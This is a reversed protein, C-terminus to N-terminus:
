KNPLDTEARFAKADAHQCDWAAQRIMKLKYAVEPGSSVQGNGLHVIMQTPKSPMEIGTRTWEALLQDLKATCSTEDPAAGVGPEAYGLLTSLSVAAMIFSRRIVGAVHWRTQHRAISSTNSM